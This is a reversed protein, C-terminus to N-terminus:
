QGDLKRIAELTIDARYDILKQGLEVLERESQIEVGHVVYGGQAFRTGARVSSKYEM